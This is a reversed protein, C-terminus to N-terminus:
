RPEVESVSTSTSDRIRATAVGGAEVESRKGALRGLRQSPARGALRRYFDTESPSFISTPGGAQNRREGAALERMLSESPIEAEGRRSAHLPRAIRSPEPYRQKLDSLRYEAAQGQQLGSSSM